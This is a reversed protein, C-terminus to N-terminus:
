RKQSPKLCDSKQAKRYRERVCVVGSHKTKRPTRYIHSAYQAMYFKFIPQGDRIQSFFTGFGILKKLFNFNQFRWRWGAKPAVRGGSLRNAQM